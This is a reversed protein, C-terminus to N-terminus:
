RETSCTSALFDFTIALSASVFPLFAVELLPLESVPIVRVANLQWRYIIFYYSYKKRYM